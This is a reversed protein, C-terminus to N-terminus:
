HEKKYECKAAQQNIRLIFDNISENEEQKTKHLIFREYIINKADAYHKNLYGCCKKFNLNGINEPYCANKLIKFSEAGISALFLPVKQGKIVNEGSITDDSILHAACFNDFRDVYDEFNEAKINFREFLKSM